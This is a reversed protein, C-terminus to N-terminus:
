LKEKITLEFPEGAMDDMLARTMIGSDTVGMMKKVQHEAALKDTLYVETVMRGPAICGLLQFYWNAPHIEIMTREPVNMVQYVRGHAPSNIVKCLYIGAPICPHDKTDRPRELTVCRFFTGSVWEGFTGETTFLTRTLLATKM